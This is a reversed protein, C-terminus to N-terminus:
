IGSSPPSVKYNEFEPDQGSALYPFHSDIGQVQAFTKSCKNEIRTPTGFICGM